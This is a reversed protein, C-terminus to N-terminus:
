KQARAQKEYLETSSEVGEGHNEAMWVQKRQDDSWRRTKWWWLAQRMDQRPLTSKPPRDVKKAKLADGFTVEVLFERPVGLAVVLEEIEQAKNIQILSEVYRQDSLYEIEAVAEGGKRTAERLAERQLVNQFEFTIFDLIATADTVKTPDITIVNKSTDFNAGTLAPGRVVTPRKNPPLKKVLELLHDVYEKNGGQAGFEQIVSDFATTKPDAYPKIHEIVMNVERDDYYGDPTRENTKAFATLVTRVFAELGKKRQFAYEPSAWSKLCSLKANELAEGELRPLTPVSSPTGPSSSSGVSSGVPGPEVTTTQPSTSKNGILTEIADVVRVSQRTGHGGFHQVTETTLDWCSGRLTRPM